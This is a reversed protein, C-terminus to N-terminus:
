KKSAAAPKEEVTNPDTQEIPKAANAAGPDTNFPFKLGNKTFKEREKVLKDFLQEANFGMETVTEDWSTMGNLLQDIIAKTEKYVDMLERRPPTWTYKVKDVPLSEQLLIADLTWKMVRECVKPIITNLQIEGMRKSFELQGIRM